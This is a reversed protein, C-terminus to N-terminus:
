PASQSIQVACQGTTGSTTCLQMAGTAFYINSAGAPSTAINDIIIGSATGAAPLGGTPVTAPSITGSTVDYGTVCGLSGSNTCASAPLAWINTSTFIYDKFGTFIESVPQGSRPAAGHVSFSNGLAPGRVPTGMVNSTIPVQYLTNDVNGTGGVLYLHGTPSAANSSTFYQNDFTGPYIGELGPGLTLAVSTGTAGTTFNTPLQVVDSCKVLVGCPSFLTGADAGVFVYVMGAVPDLLLGGVLGRSFDLQATKAVLVGTSANVSYLFGCLNGATSCVASTERDAVFVNGSVPDYVPSDLGQTSLTVPWPSGVQTPTGNFVGTFKYLKGSNDGVYAIDNAYDYYVASFSDFALLNISTMCPAACARYSAVPTNALVLPATATETTSAQWKLLVLSSVGPGSNTQTFAVQSGDRSLVPSTKAAGGITDYAWYTSPVTGTCGSYLNDYAIINAHTASGAFLSQHFVVFDPSPDSGCNATSISFSYKAPYMGPSGPGGMNVSWDRHLNNRARKRLPRAESAQAEAGTEAEAPRLLQGPNLNAKAAAERKMRQLQFRPDNVIRLWEEYRGAKIAQDATGPNSFVVHRHSWDEPVGPVGTQANKVDQACLLTTGVLIAAVAPLTILLRPYTHMKVGIAAMKEASPQM